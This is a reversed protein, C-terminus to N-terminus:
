AVQKRFHLARALTTALAKQQGLSKQLGMTRLLTCPTNMWGYGGVAMLMLLFSVSRVFSLVETLGAALVLFFLVCTCFGLTDFTEVWPLVVSPLLWPLSGRLVFGM